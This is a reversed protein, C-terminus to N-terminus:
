IRKATSHERHHFAAVPELLGTQRPSRALPSGPVSACAKVLASLAVPREGRRPTCSTPDRAAHDPSHHEATARSRSGPGGGVDLPCGGPADRHLNTLVVDHEAGGHDEDNHLQRQSSGEQSVSSLCITRIVRQCRVSNCYRSLKKSAGECAAARCGVNTSESVVVLTEAKAEQQGVALLRGSNYIRVVRRNPHRFDVELTSWRRDNPVEHEGGAQDCSRDEHTHEVRDMPTPSGLCRSAVCCHRPVPVSPRTPHPCGKLPHRGLLRRSQHPTSM